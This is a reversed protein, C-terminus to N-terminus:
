AAISPRGSATLAQMSTQLLFIPDQYEPEASLIDDAEAHTSEPQHVLTAEEATAAFGERHRALAFGVRLRERDYVTYYKRLFPDGLIFLPSGRPSPIDLAMLGLICGEPSRDVYEGPALSLIEGGILFGLHPLTDFNSCDAAVRLKEVLQRVLRTPGALLSTGTDIAVQCGAGCMNLSQNNFAVDKMAVQWFGPNTVPVWSLPGAMREERVAGFLVESEEDNGERAFFVSFLNHDLLGGKVMADLLSFGQEESLQPLALGLIGDFPVDKFPEDSENTASIFNMPACMHGLCVTDRAFNGSVEGTGFTITVSDRHRGRAAAEAATARDMPPGDASAVAGYTRSLNAQFTTHSRCAAALCESSPLILNGSGTDLVVRLVQPPTGIAIEGYYESAYTSRSRVSSFGTPAAELMRRRRKLPVAISGDRKDSEHSEPSLALSAPFLLAAAAALVLSRLTTGM